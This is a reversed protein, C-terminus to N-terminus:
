SSHSTSAVGVSASRRIPENERRGLFVHRYSVYLLAGAIPLTIALPLASNEWFLLLANLLLVPVVLVLAFTPANIFQARFALRMTLRMGLKHHVLLPYVFWQHLWAIGVGFVSFAILAPTVLLALLWAQEHQVVSEIGTATAEILPAFILAVVVVILGAAFAIAACFGAVDRLAGSLSVHRLLLGRDAAEATLMMAVLYLQCILAGLVVSWLSESTVLLTLAIMTLTLFASTFPKRGLLALAERVWILADGPKVVQPQMDSM